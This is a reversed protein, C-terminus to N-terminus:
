TKKLPYLLTVSTGKGLKSELKIKGGHGEMVHKVITLGLGSGRTKYALDGEAVRFFKDYVHEQDKDAIGIGKDSVELAAFTGERALNVTVHKEKASYKVSNDLLNILCDSIAEPDGMIEPLKEDINIAHGFGQEDLQRTFYALIDKVIDQLFVPQLHYKKQNEEMKSFNLVRNVLNTLRNTEQMIVQYYAQTKERTKVRGMYLTETYMRILALPTRLEHSVSSVFDSKWKALRLQQRINKYIIFAGLIFVINVILVILLNNRQRGTAIDGMTKGELTIGILYNELLWFPRKHRTTFNEDRNTTFVPKERGKKLAAIIFDEGAIDQLKPSLLHRIFYEPDFIVGGLAMERTNMRDEMMFYVMTKDLNELQTSELKRYNGTLYTRLKRINSEQKKVIERIIAKENVPPTYERSHYVSISDTAIFLVQIGAAHDILRKIEDQGGHYYAEQIDSAWSNFVDETFQNISFLIADLQNNYIEEVVQEDKKMSSFEYISIVAIPLIFFLVLLFTIDKSYPKL